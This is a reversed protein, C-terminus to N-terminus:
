GDSGAAWAAKARGFGHHHNVRGGARVCADLVAAWAAQHKAAGGAGALTVYVCAGEADFHSLHAFAFAHPSAALTAEREVEALRDYPAWLDATDAFCGQAFMSKLRAGDPKFRREWWARAPAESGAPALAIEEPVADGFPEEDEYVGLVTWRRGALPALANLWSARTLLLAEIRSTGGNGRHGFAHVLRDVPGLARLVSPAPTAARLVRAFGAAEELSGLSWSFFRRASPLRRIAVTAEVILGRRGEAGLQADVGGARVAGDEGAVRLARLQERVGGYRTSLQGFGDHAIWGGVSSEELSQPFHRLSWGERNLRRELAGGLWGASVRALPEQSGSLELTGTLRTADLVLQGPEPIAAGVVGSGAGRIVLPAGAEKAWALCAAAEGEDRPLLVAAPRRREVEEAPWGLAQPWLDLVRSRREAEGVLVVGRGLREALGSPNM